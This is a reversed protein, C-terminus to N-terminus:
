TKTIQAVVKPTTLTIACLCSRLIASFLSGSLSRGVGRWGREGVGYIMPSVFRERERGRLISEDELAVAPTGTCLLRVEAAAAEAVVLVGARGRHGRGQGRVRGGCRAAAARVATVDERVLVLEAGGRVKARPAHVRGGHQGGEGAVLDFVVGVRVVVGVHHGQARLGQHLREPTLVLTEVCGCVNELHANSLLGEQFTYLDIRRHLVTRTRRLSLQIRVIRYMHEEAGCRSQGKCTQKLHAKSSGEGAFAVSSRGRGYARGFYFSPSSFILPRCFNRAHWPTAGEQVQNIAKM